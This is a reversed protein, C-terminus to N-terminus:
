VEEKGALIDNARKELRGIEALHMNVDRRLNKVSQVNNNIQRHIEELAVKVRAQQKQEFEKKLGEVMGKNATTGKEALRTLFSGFDNKEM